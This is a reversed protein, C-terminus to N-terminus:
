AFDSQKHMKLLLTGTGSLTVTIDEVNDVDNGIPSIDAQLDWHGDGGLVAQDVSNRTITWSDTAGVTSWKIDSLQLNNVTEGVTNANNSAGNLVVTGSATFRAVTYGGKNGQQIIAM